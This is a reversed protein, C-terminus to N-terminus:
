LTYTPHAMPVWEAAQCNALATETLLHALRPSRRLNPAPTSPPIRSHPPADREVWPLAQKFIDALHQLATLKDNSLTAFPAAPAPHQLADILETAAWLATDASSLRPMNCHSPFFEVTDTIREANTSTIYARYCRYHEMVPGVYWGDVGHPAWSARQAPKEHVLLWIGPPAMPTRNFDFNGNLQAYASLKPNIRSVWLLNLTISAQPLLRCWLHMPFDKDTSCLGAIFHNKFTQIAREAANRRHIHPPALQLRIGAKTMKDRLAKSAENDLLILKPKLGCETLFEELYTYARIMESNSRNKMPEALIANCDYDYLIMIYQM